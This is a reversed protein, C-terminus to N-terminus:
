GNVTVFDIKVRVFIWFVKELDFSLALDPSFVDDFSNRKQNNLDELPSESLMRTHHLFGLYQSPESGISLFSKQVLFFFILFSTLFKLM